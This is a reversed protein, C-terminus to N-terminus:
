AANRLLIWRSFPPRSNKSMASTGIRTAITAITTPATRRLRRRRRVASAHDDSGFHTFIWRDITMGAFLRHFIDIGDNRPEPRLGSLGSGMFVPSRVCEFHQTRPNRARGKPGDRFSTEQRRYNLPDGEKYEPDPWPNRRHLLAAQDQQHGRGDDHDRQCHRRECGAAAARPARPRVLPRERRERRPEALDGRDLHPAGAKVQGKHAVAPIPADRLFAAVRRVGAFDAADDQREGVHGQDLGLRALGAKIRSSSTSSGPAFGPM